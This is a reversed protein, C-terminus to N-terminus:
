RLTGSMKEDVAPSSVPAPPASYVPRAGLALGVFAGATVEISELPRPVRLMVRKM